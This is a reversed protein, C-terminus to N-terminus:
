LRVVPGPGSLRTLIDFMNSVRGVLLSEKLHFFDLCTGCALVEAGRAQLAALDEVSVSGECALKVGANLLIITAPPPDLDKLTKIAARLLLRGLDEDGRGLGDGPIFVTARRLKDSPCCDGVEPLVEDGAAPGGILVQFDRDGAIVQAERGASRAYTAVNDASERSDVLVELAQDPSGTMAARTELVPQPCSLGRADVKLM